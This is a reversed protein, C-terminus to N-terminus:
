EGYVGRKLGKGAKTPAAPKKKIIKVGAGTATKNQRGEGIISSRNVPTRPEYIQAAM